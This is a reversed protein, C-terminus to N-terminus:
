EFRECVCGVTLCPGLRGHPHRHGCRGCILDELRVWTAQVAPPVNARMWADAAAALEAPDFTGLGMFTVMDAVAAPSGGPRKSSILAPSLTMMGAAYAAIHEPDANEAM